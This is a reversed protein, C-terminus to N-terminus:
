SIIEKNIIMTGVGEKSLVELLISHPLRGDIIHAGGVGGSVAELCCNVKPIMGGKIVGREKLYNIHDADIEEILSEPRNVDELIGPVDTLLILKEANLKVSIKAAAYDANINYVQGDNQNLAVTSIVPIYGGNLNHQIINENVTCIEGVYGLDEGDCQLKEAILLNGDIGSLGIAKGGVQNILAVIDKNVKGALVMQVIDITERDTVRLGNIFRGEKGIKNLMNNIEPGGGHVVVVNIGVCNLMVIDKIVSCKLEENIMANGGYKVVITKGYFKQIYPLAQLLTEARKISKEGIGSFM